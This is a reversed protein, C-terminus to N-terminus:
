WVQDIPLPLSRRWSILKKGVRAASFPTQPSAFNPVGLLKQVFAEYLVYGGQTPVM